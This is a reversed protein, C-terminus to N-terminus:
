LRGRMELAMCFVSLIGGCLVCSSRVAWIKLRPTTCRKLHVIQQRGKRSRYRNSGPSSFMARSNVLWAAVGTPQDSFVILNLNPEISVHSSTQNQNGIRYWRFSKPTESEETRSWSTPPESGSAGVV